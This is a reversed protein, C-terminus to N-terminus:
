FTLDSIKSYLYHYIFATTYLILVAKLKIVGETNVIITINLPKKM